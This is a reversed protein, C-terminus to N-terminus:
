QVQKSEAHIITPTMRQLKALEIVHEDAKGQYYTVQRQRWRIQDEIQEATPALTREIREWEQQARQEKMRKITEARRKSKTEYFKPDCLLEAAQEIGRQAAVGFASATSKIVRETYRVLWVRFNPHKFENPLLHLANEVLDDACEFHNRQSVIPQIKM